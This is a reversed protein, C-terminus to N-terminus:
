DTTQSSSKRDTREAATEWKTALGEFEVFAKPAKSDNTSRRLHEVFPKAGYWHRVVTGRMYKKYLEEDLIGDEIGIAILEYTNLFAIVKRRQEQLIPVKPDTIADFGGESTLVERFTSYVSLYFDTSESREILDLTARKRAIAQNARIVRRSVLWATVASVVSAVLPVVLFRLAAPTQGAAGFTESTLPVAETM